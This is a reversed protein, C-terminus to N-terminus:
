QKKEGNEGIPREVLWDAVEQAKEHGQEHLIALSEQGQRHAEGYDEQAQKAVHRDSMNIVTQLSLLSSVEAPKATSSALVPQM